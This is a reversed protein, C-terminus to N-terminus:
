MGKSINGGYISLVNGLAALWSEKMDQTDAMCVYIDTTKFKRSWIAFKLKDNKVTHTVGM